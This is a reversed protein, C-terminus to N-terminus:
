RAPRTRPRGACSRTPWRSAAVATHAQTGNILALGEKPELVVPALGARALAAAGALREGAVDAEGEGTLV